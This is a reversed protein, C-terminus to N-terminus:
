VAKRIIMLLSTSIHDAINLKVHQRGHTYYPPFDFAIDHQEAGPEFDLQEIACGILRLSRDFGEIDRRRYIVSDGTEITTDNSSVNYETTHVAIGGPRLCEMANRVFQLGIDLSGLHEFACSSWLFDLNGRPLTSLDRMDVNQYTVRERFEGESILGPWRVAELSAAFQGSEAWAKHANEDSFDSAIIKVGMAAFLSTLPEQGVAFGMGVKDKGFMGREDLSQAIACWEWLKRHMWKGRM